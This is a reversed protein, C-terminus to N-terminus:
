RRADPLMNLLDKWDAWAPPAPAAVAINQFGAAGVTCAAGKILARRSPRYANAFM